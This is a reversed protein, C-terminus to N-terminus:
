TIHAKKPSRLKKKPDKNPFYDVKNFEVTLEEALSLKLGYEGTQETTNISKIKVIPTLLKQEYRLQIKGQNPQSHDMYILGSEPKIIIFNELREIKKEISNCKCM